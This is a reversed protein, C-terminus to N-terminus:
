GAASTVPIVQVDMQDFSASNVGEIQWLTDFSLQSNTGLTFVPTTITGQNPTIDNCTDASGPTQYTGTADNGYWWATGMTANSNTVHWGPAVGHDGLAIFNMDGAAVVDSFASGSTGTVQINNLYWGQFANYLADGTAFSFRLEIPQGDYASLDATDTVKQPIGNLGSGSDYSDLCGGLPDSAPNLSEVTNATAGGGSITWTFSAVASEHTGDTAKVSFTHSGDALNGYTWPSTCASYGSNDIQCELTLTPDADAFTFTASSSSSPDPPTPATITPTPPVNTWDYETTAAANGFNDVAEVQFSHDGYTNTFSNGSACNTTTFGTGDVNCKLTIGGTAAETWTFVGSSAFHPNPPKTVLVPAPPPTPQCTAHGNTCNIILQSITGATYGDKTDQGNLTATQGAECSGDSICDGQIINAQTTNPGNDTDQKSTQTLKFSSGTGSNGTQTSAGYGKHNYPVRGARHKPPTFVGEPGYQKQTLTIGAPADADSTDCSSQAPSLATNVADECQTETQTVIAISPSSSDQNITGVLGSFPPDPVNAGQTQTVTAGTTTNAIASMSTKQEFAAKNLGSAHGKFGSFGNIDQNQEIDLVVNAVPLGTLPNTTATDQKQTISGQSTVTSTLKEEQTLQSGSSTDCTYVGSSPNAAGQVTNTGTLSNQQITISEHNDNTVTTSSANTKTTSGDIWVFQRVCALNDNNSTGASAPGQTISATYSSSQTLGTVKPTVMWVVAQNTGTASPQNISCSGTIGTTKVCLATNPPPKPKSARRAAFHRLRRSAGGFQVVACKATGCVFRNVGGPKAIQVVTHRTRACTWGKGPCHAGAYNRLGRQIVVKRSSVHISRLYHIVGRTTSVDIKAVGREKATVAGSGGVVVVAAVLAAFLSFIRVHV